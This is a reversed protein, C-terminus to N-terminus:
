PARPLGCRVFALCAARPGCGRHRNARVSRASPRVARRRGRWWAGRACGPRRVGCMSLPEATPVPLTHKRTHTHSTHTHTNTQTHTQTQTLKHTHTQARARAHPTHARTRTYLFMYMCGSGPQRIRARARDFAPMSAPHGHAAVAAAFRWCPQPSARRPGPKADRLTGTGARVPLAPADRLVARM